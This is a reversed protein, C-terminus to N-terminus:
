PICGGENLIKMANEPKEGEHIIARLAKIMLAPNHYQWINRGYAVGIVGARIADYTMKFLSGIEDTKPGGAIVVRGHSSDMVKLFTEYSGTYWTKIIDVGCEVGMRVAYSIQEVSYREEDKILEGKPYIHAILPMGKEECDKSIRGLSELMKPQDRGGTIVGISLADAGLSIAEGVDAVPVDLNQHFPSFSSAKLVLSVRGAYPLYYEKALGKHMTIADPEGEVLKELLTKVNEIGPLVGRALGHDLTVFFAKGTQPNLIRSLRVKKGFNM